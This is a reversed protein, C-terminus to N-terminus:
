RAGTFKKYTIELSLRSGVPVDKLGTADYVYVNYRNNAADYVNSTSFGANALTPTPAQGVIECTFYTVNSMPFSKDGDTISTIGDKRYFINKLQVYYIGATGSSVISCFKLGGKVGGTPDYSANIKVANTQKSFHNQALVRALAFAM